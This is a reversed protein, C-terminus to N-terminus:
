RRVQSDAEDDVWTYVPDATDMEYVEFRPPAPHGLHGQPPLGELAPMPSYAELQPAVPIGGTIFFFGARGELTQAICELFDDVEEPNFGGRVMGREFVHERIDMASVPPAFGTMAAAVHDLFDDVEDIDYGPVFKRCTFTMSLVVDPTLPGHAGCDSHRPFRRGRSSLM